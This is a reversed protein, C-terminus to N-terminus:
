GTMKTNKIYKWLVVVHEVAATFRIMMAFIVLKYNLPSMRGVKGLELFRLFVLTPM